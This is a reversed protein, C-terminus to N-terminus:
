LTNPNRNSTRVSARYPSRGQLTKLQKAFKDANLFASLHERLQDHYTRMTTAKLTHNVREVQGNTWSFGVM